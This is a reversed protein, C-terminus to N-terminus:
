PPLPTPPSPPGGPLVYLLGAAPLEAATWVLRLIVVALVATARARGEDGGVLPALEPTLFLTLFFERVGLGGPVVVIVFGAVYATSLYATYLGLARWSWAPPESVVTQLVAWLSAGLVLWGFATLVLGEVLAAIGPRPLPVADSQRFPQAIRRMLRNFVPPAIAVAIPVLLVLALLALVKRDLVTQGTIDQTLMRRFLDWDIAAATDPALVWFLVLALLVGAAMTTLVEYTSTVAGISLRVGDARALGARLFLAWAKGPLYKGLHGVYYARLMGGVSPRQGAARLLRDWYLASFGIGLLYLLGALVLWGPQLPQQWLDPRRLDRAFQRGVAILIVGALVLKVM